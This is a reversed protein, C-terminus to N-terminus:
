SFCLQAHSFLQDIDVCMTSRNRTYCSHLFYPVHFPRVELAKEEQFNSSKAHVDQRQEKFQKQQQAQQQQHQNKNKETAQNASVPSVQWPKTGRAMGRPTTVADERSGGGKGQAGSNTKRFSLPALGRAVCLHAACAEALECEAAQCECPASVGEASEDLSVALANLPASVSSSAYEQPAVSLHVRRVEGGM